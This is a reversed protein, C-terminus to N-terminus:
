YGANGGGTNTRGSNGGGAANGGINPLQVNINTGRTAGDGGGFTGSRFLLFAVLFVVVVLLVVMVANTGDSDTNTTQTAM